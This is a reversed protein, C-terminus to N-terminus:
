DAVEEEMSDESCEKKNTWGLKIYAGGIIKFAETAEPVTNRDPHFKLALKRYAKKIEDKTAKKDVGLVKYYDDKYSIIKLVEDKQEKTYTPSSDNGSENGSSSSSEQNNSRSSSPTTSSSSSSAASSQHHPGHQHKKTLVYGLLDDISKLNKDFGHHSPNVDEYLKKAKNILRIAKDYCAEPHSSNSADTISEKAMHLCQIASDKNAEM